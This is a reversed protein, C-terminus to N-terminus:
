KASKRAQMIIRRGAKLDGSHAYLQHAVELPDIGIRDWFGKENGSHQLRHEEPTMPVTWADDPKVGKGTKPKRHRPDGYRIHCAECGQAGSILSPLRRIFALHAEDKMRAQGKGSRDLTFATAAHPNQWLHTM